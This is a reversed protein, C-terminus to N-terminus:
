RSWDRFIETRASEPFCHEVEARNWVNVRSITCAPSFGLYRMTNRFSLTTEPWWSRIEAPFVYQDRFSALSPLFIGGDIAELLGSTAAHSLVGQNIGVIPEAVVAPIAISPPPPIKRRRVNQRLAVMEIMIRDSLSGSGKKIGFALKGALLAKFAAAWIWPNLQHAMASRLSGEVSVGTVALRKLSSTLRDVSDKQLLTDCAIVDAAEDNVKQILGADVLTSIVYRPVGLENSVEGYKSASRAISLKEALDNRDFLAVGRSASARTVVCLNRDLLTLLAARRVGMDKLADTTTITDARDRWVASANRFLRCPINLGRVIEPTTEIVIRRVSTEKSKPNFFKSIPGLAGSITGPRHSQSSIDQILERYSDPWGTILKFGELLGEDGLASFKGHAIGAWLKEWNASHRHVVMAGFEVSAAFVEGPPWNRFPAPLTALEADRIQADVHLLNAVRSAAKRWSKPLYDGQGTLTAGCHECRKLGLSRNWGLPSGCCECRDVLRQFSIPCFTLPRILWAVRHYEAAELSSASQRRKRGEIFRRELPTGFWNVTGTSGCTSQAELRAAVLEPPQSLFAAIRESASQDFALRSTQRVNVGAHRLLTITSPLVNADATRAIISFLSEDTFADVPICISRTM